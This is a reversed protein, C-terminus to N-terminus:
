RIKVLYSIMAMAELFSIKVNEVTYLITQMKAMSGILDKQELRIKQPNM